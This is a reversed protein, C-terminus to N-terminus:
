HKASFLYSFFAVISLIVVADVLIVTLLRSRKSPAPRPKPEAPFNLDNM